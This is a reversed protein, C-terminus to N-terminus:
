CVWPGWYLLGGGPEEWLAGVSLSAGNGTDEKMWRAFDKTFSTGELNGLPAGISLSVQRGLRERMVKLTGMLPVGLEEWLAGVPLSAGNRSGEKMWRKFDRTFSCGELNELPTGRPLSAQRWFRGRCLRWPGWYFVERWTGRVSSGFLSVSWKRLGGEDREWLGWYIFGRGPEGAPSRHLSIGM